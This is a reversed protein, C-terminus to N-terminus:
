RSASASSGTSRRAPWTRAPATTGTRSMHDARGTCRRRRQDGQRGLPRRRVDASGPLGPRRDQAAPHRDQASRDDQDEDLDAGAPRDQEREQRRRRQRVRDQRGRAQQRPRLDRRAYMATSPEGTQTFGSRQLSIGRYKIHQGAKAADSAPPSRTASSTAAPSASWRSPSRPRTPRTPRRHRGARRGGRRRLVRGRLQLRDVASDISRLRRKFEETLPTLPVTGKMGTLMGPADKFSDGFSNAMNGDTGYLRVEPLPRRTPRVAHSSGADPASLSLASRQWRGLCPERARGRM